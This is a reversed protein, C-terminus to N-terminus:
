FTDSAISVSQCSLSKSSISIQETEEIKIPTEKKKKISVDVEMEENAYSIRKKPTPKVPSIEPLIIQKKSNSDIAGFIPSAQEEKKVVQTVGGTM